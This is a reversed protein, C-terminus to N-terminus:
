TEDEGSICGGTPEDRRTGSCGAWTKVWLLPETCTQQIVKPFNDSFTKRIKVELEWKGKLHIGRKSWLIKHTSFSELVTEPTHYKPQDEPFLSFKEMGSERIIVM